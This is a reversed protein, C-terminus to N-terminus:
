RDDRPFHRMAHAETRPPMAHHPRAFFWGLIGIMLSLSFSYPAFSYIMGQVGASHHFSMGQDAGWLTCTGVGAENIGCGPYVASLVAMLPLVLAAIPLLLLSAAALLPKRTFLAALSAVFAIGVLAFTHRSLAWALGLTDRLGGGFPLWDQCLEPGPECQMAFATGRVLWVMFSPLLLTSACVSWILLPVNWYKSRVQPEDEHDFVYEEAM